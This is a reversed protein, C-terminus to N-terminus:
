EEKDDDGARRRRKRAPEEVDNEEVDRRGHPMDGLRKRDKQANKERRKRIAREVAARGGKEELLKFREALALEKLQRRKLFFPNKGSAVQARQQAKVKDLSRQTGDQVRQSARQQELRTVERQLETKREKSKAKKM